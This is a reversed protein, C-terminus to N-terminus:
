YGISIEIGDSLTANGFLEGNPELAAAQVVLSKGLLSTEAPVPTPLAATGGPGANAAAAHFPQLGVLLSCPTTPIPVESRSLGFLFVSIVGPTGGRAQVEFADAGLLPESCAVLHVNSGPCGTGYNSAQARAYSRSQVRAIWFAANGGVATGPPNGISRWDGGQVAAVSGTRLAGGARPDFWQVDFVESPPYARLDLSDTVWSARPLQVVFTGLGALVRNRAQSLSEDNEMAYFPVGDRFFELAHRCQDWWLDRSRFDECSLDSHENAYGFYSEIGAGGALLNGWLVDRRAEDHGPDVSDPLIGTEASGQEDNAVVWPTGAMASRSRWMKTEAYVVTTNSQLSAGDLASDPGLLPAYVLEKDGPHTHIVVSHNYPDLNRIYDSFARQESTSNTNEEGLNWNLALHHAFRSVLERYYLKREIGLAGGDLDQDNETEQTKFHLYLGKSTAHAFVVEWQDLKSVDFRTEVNPDVHPYVNGDDGRHSFTLFSIVNMGKASLYNLAGILDRGRENGWDPDGTNWDRLHLGWRKRLNRVDPTNDFDDYALLNEPSDAGVKLFWTGDAFRLHHRGVYGLLGHARFDPSAKDSSAVDFSGTLGDFPALAQGTPVPSVAVDPGTRFSIRYTWGGVLHPALYARWVNGSTAGSVAANGDAAFHGAVVRTDGTTVHTFTVEMRYDKFPNPTSSESSQPGELELAVRHWRRPMDDAHVTVSQAAVASALSAIALCYHKTFIEPLM